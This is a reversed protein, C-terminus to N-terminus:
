EAPDQKTYGRELGFIDTMALKNGDELEFVVMTNDIKKVRCVKGDSERIYIDGIKVDM